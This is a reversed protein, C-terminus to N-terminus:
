STTVVLVTEDALGATRGERSGVKVNNVVIRVALVVVMLEVVRQASVAVTTNFPRVELGLLGLLEMRATEGADVALLRETVVVELDGSLDIALLM